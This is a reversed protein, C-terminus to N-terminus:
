RPGGDPAELLVVDGPNVGDRIAVDRGNEGALVVTRAEPRGRRLVWCVPGEDSDFVAAAPVVTAGAQSAVEISVRATMGSRLRPDRDTLTVTVPFFRGGARTEDTTALAGVLTVTAGLVLDPYAEVRVTVRQSADVKHLDSERVQTQVVLQSSDPLVILPQNPWVEDGVQPKRKDSGFFLERYVVLGPGLARVETRTLQGRLTRIRADIEEVRGAAMSAGAQRQALRARAGERARREDQRASQVDARSKEIAAPREYGTLSALKLRAVRELEEARGLTAEAREVEARTAFGEALMPRVDDLAQRARAVERGAEAATAEAEAVQLPGRGDTENRLAREAVAVGQTAAEADAQARLDELRLDERARLREADAQRRAAEERALSLEIESADFRILLDGAEVSTGEPAIEVIKAQTGLAGASYVQLRAADLTGAEVLTEVFDEQRATATPWGTTARWPTMWAGAGILAVLGFSATGASLPRVRVFARLRRPTTM